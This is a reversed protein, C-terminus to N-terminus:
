LFQKKGLFVVVDVLPHVDDMQRELKGLDNSEQVTLKGQSVLQKRFVSSSKTSREFIQLAIDRAAVPERFRTFNALSIRLQANYTRSGEQETAGGELVSVGHVTWDECM